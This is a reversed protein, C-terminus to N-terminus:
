SSTMSSLSRRWGEWRESESRLLDASLAAARLRSTRAKWPARSKRHTLKYGNLKDLDMFVNIQRYSGGSIDVGAVGDVTELARRVQKDAIETLERVSRTGSVALTVIPDSDPDAKAVTPPLVNPPLNRVAASVKERVDEAAEGIDRELVFTVIISAQGESVMARMEDIGSVSAISEELPM